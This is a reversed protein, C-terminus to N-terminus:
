FCMITNITKKKNNVSSIHLLYFNKSSGKDFNLIFIDEGNLVLEAEFTGYLSLLTLQSM